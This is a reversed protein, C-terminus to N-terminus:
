KNLTQSKHATTFMLIQDRCIFLLEKLKKIEEDKEQIKQEVEHSDNKPFLDDLGPLESTAAHFNAAQLNSHHLDEVEVMLQEIQGEMAEAKEVSLKRLQEASEAAAGAEYFKINAFKLEDKMEDIRAVARSYMERFNSLEEELRAVQAVLADNSKNTKSPKASVGDKNPIFKAFFTRVKSTSRIRDHTKDRATDHHTEVSSPPTADITTRLLKLIYFILGASVVIFLSVVIIMPKMASSVEPGRLETAM